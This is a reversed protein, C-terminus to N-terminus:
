YWYLRVSRPYLMCTSYLSVVHMLLPNGQRLTCIPGIKHVTVIVTTPMHHTKGKCTKCSPHCRKCERSLSHLFYKSPCTHLCQGSKKLLYYGEKCSFCFSSSGQCEGCTDDCAQCARSTANVFFSCPFYMFPNYFLAKDNQSHIHVCFIYMKLLDTLMIIVLLQFVRNIRILQPLLKQIIFVLSYIEGKGM